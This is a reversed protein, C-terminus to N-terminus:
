KSATQLWRFLEVTCSVSVLLCGLWVARSVALQSCETLSLGFAGEWTLKGICGDTWPWSVQFCLKQSDAFSNFEFSAYITPLLGLILAAAISKVSSALKANCKRLWISYKVLPRCATRARTHALTHLPKLWVVLHGQSRRTINPYYPHVPVRTSFSYM